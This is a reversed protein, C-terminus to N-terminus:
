GEAPETEEVTEAAAETEVPEAETAETTATTEVIDYFGVKDLIWRGGNGILTLYVAFFVIVLLVVAATKALKEGTPWTVRKLEAFVDSVKKGLRKFINGKNDAM